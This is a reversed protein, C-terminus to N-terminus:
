EGHIIEAVPRRGLIWAPVLVSLLTLLITWSATSMLVSAGVSPRLSVGALTPRAWRLLLLAILVGAGGGAFTILAGQAGVYLVGVARGFGLSRLIAIQRRRDWALRSLMTALGFAAAWGIARTVAGILTLLGEWQRPFTSWLEGRAAVSVGERLMDGPHLAGGAPIVYLSVDTGWGLLDQAGALPIWAENEAYSGTEFIGVVEFVRGRLRVTGGTAAHIRDALRAGIMATRPGDGPQLPRGDTVVFPDLSAYRDLAVGKVLVANALSTGVITHIEPVYSVVGRARLLAEVENSLRSGYFEGFSQTEQIVLYDHQAPPYDARLAQGYAGLTVFATVAIAFVSGLVGAQRRHSGLDRWALWTSLSM